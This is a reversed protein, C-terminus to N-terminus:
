INSDKGKVGKAPLLGVRRALRLLAMLKARLKQKQVFAKKSAIELITDGKVDTFSKNIEEVERLYKEDLYPAMLIELHEILSYYASEDNVARAYNMKLLLDFIVDQFDVKKTQEIQVAKM